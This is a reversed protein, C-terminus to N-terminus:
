GYLTCFVNERYRKKTTCESEKDLDFTIAMVISPKLSSRRLSLSTWSRSTSPLYSTIFVAAISLLTMYAPTICTKLIIQLHTTNEVELTAPSLGLATWCSLSTLLTKVEGGSTELYDHKSLASLINLNRSVCTWGGHSGHAPRVDKHVLCAPLCTRCRARHEVM